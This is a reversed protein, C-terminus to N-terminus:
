PEDNSEGWLKQRLIDLYHKVRRESIGLERAILYNQDGMLKRQYVERIMPDVDALREDLFDNAWKALQRLINKDTESMEKPKGSKDKDELADILLEINPVFSNQGSVITERDIVQQAFDWEESQNSDASMESFYRTKGRPLTKTRLAKNVKRRMTKLLMEEFGDDVAPASRHGTQRWLSKLISQVVDDRDGRRNDNRVGRVIVCATLFRSIQDWNPQGNKYKLTKPLAM